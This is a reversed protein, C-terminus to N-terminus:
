QAGRLVAQILASSLVLLSLILAYFLWDRAFAARLKKTARKATEDSGPNVTDVTTPEVRRHRLAWRSVEAMLNHIAETSWLLSSIVASGSGVSLIIHAYKFNGAFFIDDIDDIKVLKNRLMGRIQISSDSMRVGFACLNAVHTMAFSWAAFSALLGAPVAASQHQQVVAVVALGLFWSPAVTLFVFLLLGVM